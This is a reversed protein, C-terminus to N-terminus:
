KWISENRCFTLLTSSMMLKFKYTNVALSASIRSVGSSVLLVAGTYSIPQYIVVYHLTRNRINITSIMQTNTNIMTIPAPPLVNLSIRLCRWFCCSFLTRIFPKRDAMSTTGNVMRTTRFPVILTDTVPCFDGNIAYLSM